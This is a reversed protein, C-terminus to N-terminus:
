PRILQLSKGWVEEMQEDLIQFVVGEEREAKLPGDRRPIDRGFM